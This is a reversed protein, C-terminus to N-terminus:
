TARTLRQHNVPEAPMTKCGRVVTLIDRLAGERNGKQIAARGTALASLRDSSLLMVM